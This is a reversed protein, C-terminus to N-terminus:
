RAHADARNLRKGADIGRVKDMAAFLNKARERATLREESLVRELGELVLARLTTRREVALLRAQRVMMDPIEITTKVVRVCPLVTPKDFDIRGL